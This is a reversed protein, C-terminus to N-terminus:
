DEYNKEKLLQEVKTRLKSPVAPVNDLTKEGSKILEVYAQALKEMRTPILPNEKTQDSSWILDLTVEFSTTVARSEALKIKEDQKTEYEDSSYYTVDAYWEIDMGRDTEVEKYHINECVAIEDAYRM